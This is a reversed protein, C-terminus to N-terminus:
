HMFKNVHRERARRSVGGLSPTKFGDALSPRQRSHGVSVVIEASVRDRRKLFGAQERESLQLASLSGHRADIVEKGLFGGVRRVNMMQVIEARRLLGLVIDAAKNSLSTRYVQEIPNPDADGIPIPM